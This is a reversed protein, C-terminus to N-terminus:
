EFPVKGRAYFGTFRVNHGGCNGSDEAMLYNRSLVKVLIACDYADKAVESWPKYSEDNMQTFGVQGNELPGEGDVGGEHLAGNRANEENMAWYAEGSVHIWGPQKGKSLTLNQWKTSNWDGLWDELKPATVDHLTLVDSKLWGSTFDGKRSVFAACVFAGETEFVLLEDGKLVYATTPKEDAGHFFAKAPNVTALRLNEIGAYGPWTGYCEERAQATATSAVIAGAIILTRIVM